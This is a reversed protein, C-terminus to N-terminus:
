KLFSIEVFVFTSTLAAVVLLTFGELLTVTTSLVTLTTVEVSSLASGVIIPVLVSTLTFVSGLPSLVFILHHDCQSLGGLFVQLGCLALLIVGLSDSQPEVLDSRVVVIFLFSLQSAQEEAVSNSHIFRAKLLL